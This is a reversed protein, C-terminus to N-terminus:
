YAGKLSIFITSPNNIGRYYYVHYCRSARYRLFDTFVIPYIRKRLCRIIGIVIANKDNVPITLSLSIDKCVIIDLELWYKSKSM